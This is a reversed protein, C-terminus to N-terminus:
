QSAQAFRRLLLGITLSLISLILTTALWLAGMAMWFDLPYMCILLSYYSFTWNGQPFLIGHFAEFLGNFDVLAWAGFAVFLVIVVLPATILARAALAKKRRGILTALALAGVLAFAAVVPIATNILDNCDQLHSLADADLSFADNVSALKTASEVPYLDAVDADLIRTASPYPLWASREPSGEASAARAKELILSCLHAAAEDDGGVLVHSDVTFDRSALALETLSSAPYASDAVNSLNTSLAATTPRAACVFFGSAFLVACLCIASIVCLAPYFTGPTERDRLLAENM